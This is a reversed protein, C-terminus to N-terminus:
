APDLDDPLEFAPLHRGQEWLVGALFGDVWGGGLAAQISQGGGGQALRIVLPQLIVAALAMAEGALEDLDLGGREAIREYIPVAADHAEQLGEATSAQALNFKPKQADFRAIFDSLETM